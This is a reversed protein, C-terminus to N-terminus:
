EKQLASTWKMIRTRLTFIFDKVHHPPNKEDVQVFNYININNINMKYLKYLVNKLEKM